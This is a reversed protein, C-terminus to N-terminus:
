IDKVIDVLEELSYALLTADTMLELRGRIKDQESTHIWGGPMNNVAENQQASILEEISKKFVDSMSPHVEQLSRLVLVREDMQMEEEIKAAVKKRAEIRRESLSEKIANTLARRNIRKQKEM